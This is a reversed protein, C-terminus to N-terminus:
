ITGSEVQSFTFMREPSYWIFENQKERTGGPNRFVGGCLSITTWRYCVDNGNFQLTVRAAPSSMLSAWDGSLTGVGDAGISAAREDGSWRDRGHLQHGVIM